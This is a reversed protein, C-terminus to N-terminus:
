RSPAAAAGSHRAFDPTGETAPKQKNEILKVSHRIDVLTLFAGFAVACFVFALILAAVATLFGHVVWGGIFAAVLIVWMSVELLVGYFSVIIKSLM